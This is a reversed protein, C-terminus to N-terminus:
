KELNLDIDNEKKSDMIGKATSSSIIEPDDLKERGCMSLILGSFVRDYMNQNERVLDVMKNQERFFGERQTEVSNSLDTFQERTFAANPNSEHILRVFGGSRGQVLAKVLEKQLKSSATTIQAKQKIIKFMKDYYGEIKKNQAKVSNKQEADTNLTSVITGCGIMGIICVTAIIVVAAIKTTSMFDGKGFKLSIKPRGFLNM